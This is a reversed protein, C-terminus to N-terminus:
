YNQFLYSLYRRNKWAQMFEEFPYAQHTDADSPFAPDMCLVRKTRSDYGKVVILHGSTYPMLSGTLQGKVSVVIPLGKELYPVIAEFGTVRECWCHGQPGLTVFAQAVNFPWHGYIDFGADYVKETFSLPNLDSCSLIFRLAATTSIPSCFSTARPHPLNLQSLGPVELHISSLHPLSFSPLPLPLPQQLLSACGYLRYFDHLNAEGYAKVCLRFGTAVKGALVEVQDQFCRVHTKPSQEEFSYQYHDGWVAYLLWSSWHDEIYVSALIVYQGKLPRQANWSIILEDFPLLDIAEWMYNKQHSCSFTLEHKYLM